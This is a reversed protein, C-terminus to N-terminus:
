KKMKQCYKYIEKIDKFHVNHKSIEKNSHLLGSINGKGDRVYYMNSNGLPAYDLIQYSVGDSVIIKEENGRYEKM